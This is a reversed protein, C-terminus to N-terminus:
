SVRKRPAVCRAASVSAYADTPAVSADRHSAISPGGGEHASTEGRHQTPGAVEDSESRGPPNWDPMDNSGPMNLVIVQCHRCCIRPPM